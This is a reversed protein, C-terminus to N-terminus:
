TFEGISVVIAGTAGQTCMVGILEHGVNHPVKYATERKCQVVIYEDGRRLKLDIGGDFHTGAHGVREVDYGQRRYHEAILSEFEFPDLRALADDHRRTVRTLGNRWRAAMTLDHLHRALPLVPRLTPEHPVRWRGA